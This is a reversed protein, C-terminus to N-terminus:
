ETDTREKRKSDTAWCIATGVREFKLALEDLLAQDSMCSATEGSRLHM